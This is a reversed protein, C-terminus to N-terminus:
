SQRAMCTSFERPPSPTRARSLPREQAAPSSNTTAAATTAMAALSDQVAQPIELGEHSVGFHGAIGLVDKSAMQYKILLMRMWKANSRARQLQESLEQDLVKSLTINDETLTGMFARGESVTSRVERERWLEIKAGTDRSNLKKVDVAFNQWIRAGVDFVEREKTQIKDVQQECSGRFERLLEECKTNIKVVEGMKRAEIEIEEERTFV